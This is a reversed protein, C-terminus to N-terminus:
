SVMAGLGGATMCLIFPVCLSTWTGLVAVPAPPELPMLGAAIAPMEVPKATTRAIPAGGTAVASTVHGNRVQEKIGLM